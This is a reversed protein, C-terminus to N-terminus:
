MCEKIGFSLLRKRAVVVVNEGGSVLYNVVDGKMWVGIIVCVDLMMFFLLWDFMKVLGFEVAADLDDVVFVVVSSIILVLEEMLWVFVWGMEEM